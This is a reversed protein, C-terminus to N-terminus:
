VGPSSTSCVVEIRNRCIQFDRSLELRNTSADDVVVCGREPM